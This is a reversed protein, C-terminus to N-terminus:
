MQGGRCDNSRCVVRWQCQKQPFLLPKLMAQTTRIGDPIDGEPFSLRALLCPARLTEPELSSEVHVSPIALIVIPKPLMQSPEHFGQAVTDGFRLATRERHIIGPLSPRAHRSQMPAVGDKPLNGHTAALSGQKLLVRAKFEGHARMRVFVDDLKVDVDVIGGLAGMDDPVSRSRYPGRPIKGANPSDARLSVPLSVLDGRHPPPPPPPARDFDGLRRCRPRGKGVVSDRGGEVLGGRACTQIPLAEDIRQPSVLSLCPPNEKAFHTVGDGPKNSFPRESKDTGRPTGLSRQATWRQVPVSALSLPPSGDYDDVARLSNPLALTLTSECESEGAADCLM